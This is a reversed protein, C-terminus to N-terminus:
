AREQVLALVRASSYAAAWSQPVLVLATMYHESAWALEPALTL